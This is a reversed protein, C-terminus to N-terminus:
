ERGFSPTTPSAARSFPIDVSVRSLRFAEAALDDLQASTLIGLTEEDGLLALWDEDDLDPSVVTARVLAGPFTESNWGRLDRPDVEAGDKRPPHAAVLRGFHFDDLGRVRFDMRFEDLQTKLADLRAQIESVSGNGALSDAPKQAQELEREVAEYEDLLDLDAGLWVPVTKTTPRANKIREKPSLM